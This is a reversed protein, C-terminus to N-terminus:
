GKGTSPAGDSVRSSIAERSVGGASHTVPRRGLQEALLIVRHMFEALTQRERRAGMTEPTIIDIVDHEPYIEHCPNQDAAAPIVLISVGDKRSKISQM